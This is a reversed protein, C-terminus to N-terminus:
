SLIKKNSSKFEIESLKKVIMEMLISAQHIENDDISEFNLYFLTITQFINGVEEKNKVNNVLRFFNGCQKKFEQFDCQFFNYTDM